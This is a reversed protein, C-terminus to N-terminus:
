KAKPATREASRKEVEKLIDEKLKMLEEKFMEDALIERLMADFRGAIADRLLEGTQRTQEEIFTRTNLTHEILRELRDNTIDMKKDISSLAIILQDLRDASLKASVANLQATDVVQGECVGPLAPDKSPLWRGLCVQPGSPGRLFTYGELEQTQSYVSPVGAACILWLIAAFSLAKM